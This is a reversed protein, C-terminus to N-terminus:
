HDHGTGHDGHDDHAHDKKTEDMRDMSDRMSLVEFSVVKEGAHEFVLTVEFPEDVVHPQNIQMFMLHAGGPALKVTAGAAIVLGDDLPRMIMVDNNMTMTHVEAKGSHDSRVAILRDDRMGHNAITLYGSGVKATPTTVRSWADSIMLGHHHKKDAVALPAVMLMMGVALTTMMRKM